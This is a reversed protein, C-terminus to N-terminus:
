KQLLQVCRTMRTSYMSDFALDGENFDVGWVLDSTSGAMETASWYWGCEAPLEAPGYCGETPGEGEGCAYCTDDYCDLETCEDTVGCTGDTITSACGRILTRLESVTPLRWGGGNVTQADCYSAAGAWDLPSASPNVLWNLGTTPDTWTEQDDDDNDDNDDDDDAADDDAADDDAADDDGTDDDGTDDDAVDNDDDDDDGCSLAVGIGAFLLAFIALMLLRKM